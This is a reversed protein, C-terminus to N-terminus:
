PPKKEAMASAKENKPVGSYDSILTWPTGWPNKRGNLLAETPLDEHMVSNFECRHNKGAERKENANRGPLKLCERANRICNGHQHEAHATAREELIATGQQKGFAM